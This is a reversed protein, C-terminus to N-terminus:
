QAAAELCALSELFLNPVLEGQQRAAAAVLLLAALLCALQAQARM